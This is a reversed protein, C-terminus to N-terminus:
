SVWAGILHLPWAGGQEQPRGISPEDIPTQVFRPLQENNWQTIGSNIEGVQIRLADSPAYAALLRQVDLELSKRGPRDASSGREIRQFLAEGVASWADSFRVEFYPDIEGFQLETASSRLSYGLNSDAFVGWRATPYSKTQASAGAALLAASLAVAPLPPRRFRMSV